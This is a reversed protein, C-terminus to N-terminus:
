TPNHWRESGQPKQEKFVRDADINIYDQLHKELSKESAKTLDKSITAIIKHAKNKPFDDRLYHLMKPPAAMILREYEHSNKDLYDALEEAFRKKEREHPDSSSDASRQNEATDWFRGRETSVLERNPKNVHDFEAGEVLKLKQKPGQYDYIRATAGDSVMIWTPTSNM